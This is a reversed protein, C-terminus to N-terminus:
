QLFMIIIQNFLISLWLCFSLIFQVDVNAGWFLLLAPNYDNIVTEQSTRKLNYLRVRRLGKRQSQLMRDISNLTTKSTSVRPFGAFNVNKCREYIFCYTMREKGYRCRYFAKGKNWKLQRCSCSCKHRQYQMVLNYLRDDKDNPIACTIYKDIYATM